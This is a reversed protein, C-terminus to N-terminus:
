EIKKGNLSMNPLHRLPRPPKLQCDVLVAKMGRSHNAEVYKLIFERERKCVCVSEKRRKTIRRVLQLMQMMYLVISGDGAIYASKYPIGYM